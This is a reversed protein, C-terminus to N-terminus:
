SETERFLSRNKESGPHRRFEATLVFATVPVTGAVMMRRCNTRRTQREATAMMGPVIV